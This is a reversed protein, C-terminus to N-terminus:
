RRRRRKAWIVYVCVVGCGTGVAALVGSGKGVSRDYCYLALNLVGMVVGFYPWIRARM